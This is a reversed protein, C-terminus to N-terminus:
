PTLASNNSPRCCRVLAAVFVLALTIWIQSGACRSGLVVAQGEFLYNHLAEVIGGVLRTHQLVCAVSDVYVSSEVPIPLGEGKVDMKNWAMAEAAAADIEPLDM